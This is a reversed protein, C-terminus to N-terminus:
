RRTCLCEHDLLRRPKYNDSRADRSSCSRANRATRTLAKEPKPPHINCLVRKDHSLTALGLPCEKAHLKLEGLSPPLWRTFKASVFDSRREGAQAAPASARSVQQAVSARPTKRSHGWPWSMTCSCLQSSESAYPRWGSMGAAGVQGRTSGHRRAGVAVPLGGPNACVYRTAVRLLRAKILISGPPTHASAVEGFASIDITISFTRVPSDLASDCVFCDFPSLQSSLPSQLLTHSDWYAM